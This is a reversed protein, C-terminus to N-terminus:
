SLEMAFQSGSPREVLHILNGEGDEFFLVRGGGGAPKIPQSFVVGRSELELKAIELKQVQLALHRWGALKNDSIERLSFDSEYLELIMGGSIRIFFAPPTAPRELVVTAGLKQVYWDKLFVVNRAALGIHELAFKM